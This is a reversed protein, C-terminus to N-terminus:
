DASVVIGRCVVRVIYGLNEGYLQADIPNTFKGPINHWNTGDWRQCRYIKM